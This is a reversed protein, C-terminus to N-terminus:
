PKRWWMPPRRFSARSSTSIRHAASTEGGKSLFALRATHVDRTFTWAITDGVIPALDALLERDWRDIERNLAVAREAAPVKQLWAEQRAFHSRVAAIFRAQRDFHEAWAEPPITELRACAQEVTVGRSEALLEIVHKSM